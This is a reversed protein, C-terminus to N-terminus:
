AVSIKHHELWADLLSMNIVLRALNPHLPENGNYQKLLWARKTGLFHAAIGDPKQLCKSFHAKLEPLHIWDEFCSNLGVKKRYIFDHKMYQELIKKLPYKITNNLTKEAWSYHGQDQLISFWTFPYLGSNLPQSNDYSKATNNKCAYNVMKFVSYRMWDDQKRKEPKLYDYYYQWLPLLRQSINEADKLWMNGFPGLYVDMFQLYPDDMFSDRPHFRQYGPLKNSQLQAAVWENMRQQWKPRQPLDGIIQRNYNTSGYCGDALTGDIVKHGVLGTKKFFYATSITSSEGIPQIAHEKQYEFSPITDEPRFLAIELEAKSAAAAEKAFKVEPDQEGFQIYYAPYARDIFKDILCNALASDVGGSIPVLPNLTAVFEFEANLLKETRVLNGGDMPFDLNFFFKFASRPVTGNNCWAVLEQPGFNLEQGVPVCHIDDVVTIYEPVDGYKLISFAGDFRVKRNSYPLLERLDDSCLIGDKLLLFYTRARTIRASHLTMSWSSVLRRWQFGAFNNEAKRVLVSLDITADTHIAYGTETRVYPTESTFTFLDETQHYLGRSDRNRRLWVFARDGVALTSFVSPEARLLTSEKRVIGVIM